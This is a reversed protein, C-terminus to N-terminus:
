SSSLVKHRDLQFALKLQQRFTQLMAADIEGTRDRHCVVGRVAVIDPQIKAVAPLHQSQLSGALAFQLGAVTLQSRLNKLQTISMHHFVDGASKDYTDVLFTQCNLEQAVRMVDDLPPSNALHTDAYHVAVRQVGSPLQDFLAALKERWNPLCGCGALGIKVSDTRRPVQDISSAQPLEGLALSVRTQTHWKGVVAQWIGPSTAGLSGLHPEKLDLLDVGLKGALNAEEVSRVSVLLQM